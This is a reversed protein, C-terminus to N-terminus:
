KAQYVVSGGVITTNVKINRIQDPDIKTPDADLVVMDALYGPLLSGKKKEEFTTYAGGYTYAKIADEADICQNAGVVVGEKTKRTVASGLRPMAQYPSIPADSHLAYVIGMDQATKTPHLMKLRDPGYVLMKEGLEYMYCHFVPIIGDKKINDMIKQTTLSCHEIRHRPDPRPNAKQAKEIASIVMDIERDGNSHCAIQWGFNHIKAFLSDLAAQSRAPPIGYYDRKGTVPNIMDYPENLWCTKGSLSNGHIVKVSAIRLYDTETRPIKGSLVQDLYEWWIIANVRIPFHEAVLKRYIEVRDPSTHADGISTVGSALVKNFYLRYGNMEEEPTPQPPTTIKARHLYGAASEKCIGDPKNTGQYREFLGGAPDKTTDTIGARDMLYSNAASLHGSVHSILVPHDTTAKDLSDRIPQGGLATENYGVGRILMGKPTIAAKRKILAILNKMSSVTDLELSAYPAEFPYLAAPHQHVDNFGPVVTKGNLKIIKTQKGAYKMVEADTGTALIKGDAMAIAQARSGKQKLTIINGGTLILNAQQAHLQLQLTLLAIILTFLKKM